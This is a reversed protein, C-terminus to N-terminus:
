YMLEGANIKTLLHNEEPTIACAYSSDYACYPNYAMNFDLDIYDQHHFTEIPLYRGTSHTKVGNTSDKFPLIFDNTESNKFLTLQHKQQNLTFYLKAIRQYQVTEQNKSFKITVTNTSDYSEVKATTIYNPNVTFYNLKKSIKLSDGETLYRQQEEHQKNISESYESNSTASFYYFVTFITLGILTYFVINKIM